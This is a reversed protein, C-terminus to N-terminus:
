SLVCGMAWHFDGWKLGRKGLPLILYTPAYTPISAKTFLQVSIPYLLAVDWFLEVTNGSTSLKYWVFCPASRNITPISTCKIVHM